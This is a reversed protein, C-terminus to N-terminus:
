KKVKQNPIVITETDGLREVYDDVDDSYEPNAIAKALDKGSTKMSTKIKRSSQKDPDYGYGPGFFLDESLNNIRTQYQDKSKQDKNSRIGAITYSVLGLLTLWMAEPVLVSALSGIIWGTTGGTKVASTWALPNDLDDKLEDLEQIKQYRKQDYRDNKKIGERKIKELHRVRKDNEKRLNANRICSLTGAIPFYAGFMSAPLLLEPFIPRILAGLGICAAGVVTGMIVALICNADLDFSENEYDAIKEDIM